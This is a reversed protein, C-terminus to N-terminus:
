KFIDVTSKTPVRVMKEGWHTIWGTYYESVVLPGKPQYKRLMKWYDKLEQNTLTSGFDVTALVGSIKSCYSFEWGDTTFLVAKDDVYELTKNKLWELYKHDCIENSGYENEVQVLIIPGGNGYLYSKMRSMLQNYWISVENM